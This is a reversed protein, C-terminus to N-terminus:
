PLAWEGVEPRRLWSWGCWAWLVLLTFLDMPPYHHTPDLWICLYPFGIVLVLATPPLANWVWRGRDPPPGEPLPSGLRPDYYALAEPPLPRAPRRLFHVELYQRPDTFLLCVPLAALLVDYYMFHYCSLWAGLLVFAAAPGAVAAPRRWRALAVLVTAGVAGLWLGLGLVRPLLLDPDTARETKDFHLLWRRPVGVLDRSLFIWPEDQNYHATALRGVGLWDFWTQVGVFPLTLLSLAAGTALMAACVRWRRTLLPVLFFSAAWVPKFALLGWVVGGLVPWGRTMLLWGVTLLALSLTANQGLNISGAFSPFVMLLTAAVPLWVRGHTLRQALWGCVFALLLNLAQVLRYAPRPPLAGLPAFLVAHVPPYLPGGLHPATVQDLRERTWGEQGAALLAAAGLADPAAFPAAFSAVTDPADPDDRGMTWMMLKEADSPPDARNEDARPYAENLATRLYNRDYLHRGYGKVIMRGMVWQGGFDISGHGWNGDARGGDDWCTWAFYGALAAATLSVLWALALRTGRRVLFSGVRALGEVNERTREM